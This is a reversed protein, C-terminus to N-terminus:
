ESRDNADIEDVHPKLEDPVRAVDFRSFDRKKPDLVPETDPAPVKARFGADKQSTTIARHTAVIDMLLEDYAVSDLDWTISRFTEDYIARPLGNVLLPSVNLLETLSLFAKLEPMQQGTFAICIDGQKVLEMLGFFDTFGRFELGATEGRIEPMPGIMVTKAEPGKTKQKIEM